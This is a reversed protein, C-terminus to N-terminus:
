KKVGIIGVKKSRKGFKIGEKERSKQQLASSLRGKTNLFGRFSCKQLSHLGLYFAAYHQMEDPEVSNSFTFFIKLCFFM